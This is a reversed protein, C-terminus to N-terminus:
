LGVIAMGYGHVFDEAGVTQGFQKRASEWDTGEQLYLISGAPLAHRLPKPCGKGQDFGGIVHPRDTLLTEVAALEADAPSWPLPSLLWVKQRAAEGQGEAKTLTPDLLSQESVHVRARHGRGGLLIVDGHLKTLAQRLENRDDANASSSELDVEIAFGAGQAFRFSLALYFMGEQTTLKDPDRAIGIREEVKYVSRQHVLDIASPDIERLDKAISLAFEGQGDHTLYRRAGSETFLYKGTLSEKGLDTKCWPLRPRRDQQLDNGNFHYRIPAASSLEVQRQLQLKVVRCETPDQATGDTTEKPKPIVLDLPSPLLPLPRNKTALPSKRLDPSIALFPGRIALSGWETKGGLIQRAWKAEIGFHADRSGFDADLRTFLASRLAGRFSGPSPCSSRALVHSGADWPRPERFHLVDLPEFFLTWVSSM